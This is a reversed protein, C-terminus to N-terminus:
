QQKVGLQDVTMGSLTIAAKEYQRTALYAAALTKRARKGQPDAPSSKLVGLAVTAAQDPKGIRLCIEALECAAEQASVGPSLVKPAETLIDYAESLREADGYCRAQVIRLKARLLPDSVQPVNARLVAAGKEALGMERYVGATLSLVLYKQQDTEAERVTWLLAALAKPLNGGKRWAEALALHAEMQQGPTPDTGLALRFAEIAHGASGLATHCRGLLLYTQSRGPLGAKAALSIHDSLWKVAEDFKGQQYLCKAAGLSASIKVGVSDARFFLKKFVGFAEAVRGAKMTVKGLLAYAQAVEPRDPYIDLLATLDEAAGSYDHIEIRLKACRLLVQPGIRANSFRAAISQYERIAGVADGSCEQLIGLAFHGEAIRRDHPVRLFLRRWVLGAESASLDRQQHLSESGAPDYITIAGGTFRVILGASGAALECLRQGSVQRLYLSVLRNRVPVDVSVWQLDSKAKTAFCTLVEALPARLCTATWRQTHGQQDLPQVKPGLVAQSPQRAGDALLKRLEREDLGAFPDAPRANGWGILEDKGHLSMTRNTLAKAILFYCDTELALSDTLAAFATAALYARLRARLHHGQREEFMALHYNAVGRVVPSESITAILYSNKAEDPKALRELCQAMRLQFLGAMVDPEPGSRAIRYLARYHRLATDYRRKAFAASAESWSASQDEEAAIKAEKVPDTGKQKMERTTKDVIAIARAHAPPGQVPLWRVSFALAAIALTNALLFLHTTSFRRPSGRKAGPHSKGPSAPAEAAAPAATVDVPEAGADASQDAQQDSQEPM